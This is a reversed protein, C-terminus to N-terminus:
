KRWASGSSSDAMTRSAAVKQMRRLRRLPPVPQTKKEPAMAPKLTKKSKLIEGQVLQHLNSSPHSTLVIRDGFGIGTGMFIDPFAAHTGDLYGVPDLIWQLRQIFAPTRPKALRTM